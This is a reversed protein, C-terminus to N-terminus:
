SAPLAAATKNQVIEGSINSNAADPIAIGEVMMEGFAGNKLSIPTIKTVMCKGLKVHLDDGAGGLAKGYVKFYSFSEGGKMQVTVKESAGTGSVTATRGTMAAYAEATLGGAKMKWKINKTFTRAAVITDNGPLTQTNLEEEYELEQAADLDVASGTAPVIKIQNMGYVTNGYGAM